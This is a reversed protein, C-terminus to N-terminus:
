EKAEAEKKDLEAYHEKAEEKVAMYGVLGTGLGLIASLVGLIVNKKKM